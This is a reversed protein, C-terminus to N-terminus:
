NGSIKLYLIMIYGRNTKRYPDEETSFVDRCTPLNRRFSLFHLIEQEARFSVKSDITIQLEM